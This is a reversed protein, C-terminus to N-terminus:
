LEVVTIEKTSAITNRNTDEGVSTATVTIVDNATGGSSGSVTLVGSETITYVDTVRTGDSKAAAVTWVVNPNANTPTVSFSMQLESGKAKAITTANGAATVTVGRLASHVTVTLSTTISNDADLTATITATGATVGIVIGAGDVTAIGVNSSTWTVRKEQRTANTPIFTLRQYPGRNGVDVELTASRVSISTVPVPTPAPGVTVTATDTFGGDDTTGTIIATGETLGTVRAATPNSSSPTVSAIAPKNSTWHVQKNSANGPELVLRVGAMPGGVFLSIERSTSTTTAGTVAVVPAAAVTVAVTATKGGDVTTATMIAEGEAVATVRVSDIGWFSVIEVTAINIDSSSWTVAKNTANDPSVEAKLMNYTGGIYIEVPTIPTIRVSTVAVSAGEESAENPGTAPTETETDTAPTETETDTAPTETDTAELSDDVDGVQLTGVNYIVDDKTDATTDQDDKLILNYKGATKDTSLDFESNTLTYTLIDTSADYTGTVDGTNDLTETLTGKTLTLGATALRKLVEANGGIKISTVDGATETFEGNGNATLKLAQNITLVAQLESVKTEIKANTMGNEPICITRIAGTTSVKVQDTLGLDNYTKLGKKIDACTNDKNGKIVGYHPNFASTNAIEAVKGMRTIKVNIRPLEPNKIYAEGDNTIVQETEVLTAAADGQKENVPYTLGLKSEIELIADQQSLTVPSSSSSSSNCSYLTVALALAALIALTKKM